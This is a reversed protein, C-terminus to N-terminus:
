VGPPVYDWGTQQKLGCLLRNKFEIFGFHAMVLSRKEHKQNHAPPNLLVAGIANELETNNVPDILTGLKGGLLAEVSGDANGAIVPLGCWSAEIFVIGFGEKRSPLVFVDALHYLSVLENEEIYGTLTVLNHLKGADIIKTIRKKEIEDWKGALLYKVPGAKENVRALVDLVSDYGKFKETSALRAVTLIVKDNASVGFRKRLIEPAVDPGTIEFYPDLCNPFIHLREQSVGKQTALINATYRSVCWVEHCVQLAGSQLRSLPEWVERGHALCITRKSPFLINALTILPALNIHSFFITDAKKMEALAAAFFSLRQGSFGRFNEKPLYIEVPLHDYASLVKLQWDEESCTDYLAKCFCRNFKEIGGTASFTKLTLFLIKM